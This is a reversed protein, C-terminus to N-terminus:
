WSPAAAVRDTPRSTNRPRLPPPAPLKSSSALVMCTARSTMIPSPPCPRKTTPAAAASPTAPWTVTPRLPMLTPRGGSLRGPRGSTDSAWSIALAADPVGSRVSRVVKSASGPRPKASSMWYVANRVKLSPRRTSKGNTGALENVTSPPLASATVPLRTTPSCPLPTNPLKAPLVTVTPPASTTPWCPSPRYEAAPRACSIMVPSQITPSAPLPMQAPPPTICTFPWDTRPLCAPELASTARAPLPPVRSRPSRTTPSWPRATSVCDPEPPTCTSPLMVTPRAASPSPVQSIPTSVIATLPPSTTPPCPRPVSVMRWAALM